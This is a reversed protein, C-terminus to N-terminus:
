PVALYDGETYTIELSHILYTVSGTGRKFHVVLQEDAAVAKSCSITVWAPNHDSESPFYASGFATQPAGQDDYVNGLMQMRNVGSQTASPDVWARVQTITAGQPVFRNLHCALFELGSNASEWYGNSSWWWTSGVGGIGACTGCSLPYLFVRSKIEEAYVRAAGNVRVKARHTATAQWHAGDHPSSPDNTNPAIRIPGRVPSVGSETFTGGYAGQGEGKVGAEYTGPTAGSQGIVGSKGTGGKCWAGDGVTGEFRGGYGSASGGYGEVGHGNAGGTGKVGPNAGNGTAEIGEEAVTPAFTQKRTFTNAVNSYVLYDLLDSLSKTIARQGSNDSASPPNGSGGGTVEGVFWYGATASLDTYRSVRPGLLIVEYDSATTSPTTQGMYDASDCIAAGTPVGGIDACDCLQIAIAASSAGVAPSKKWVLAKRGTVWENVGGAITNITFRLYGGEDSVSDPEGREGIVEQWATYEPYGTRPNIQVDAPREAYKLGVSYDIGSENAFKVSQEYTGGIQLLHGEGDTGEADVPTDLSFEGASSIDFGVKTSGFTGNLTYVKATFDVIGGQLYELLRQKFSTVGLLRKLVLNVYEDGTM